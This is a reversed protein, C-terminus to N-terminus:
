DLALEPPRLAAIIQPAPGSKKKPYVASGQLIREDLKDVWRQVREIEGVYSAGNRCIHVYQRYVFAVFDALQVLGVHHSPVYFPTHVLQDFPEAKPKRQYYQNAWDPPDLLVDITRGQVKSKDAVLLTTGKNNDKNRHERQIQLLVHFVCLEELSKIPKLEEPVGHAKDAAALAIRNKGDCFWEIWRDIIGHRHEGGLSSWAGTGEYLKRSKLEPFNAGAEKRLAELHASWERNFKVLRSRADVRIGVTVIVDSDEDMGTEDIYCLYM